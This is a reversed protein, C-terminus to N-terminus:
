CSAGLLEPLRRKWEREREPTTSYGPDYRWMGGEDLVWTLGSWSSCGAGPKSWGMGEVLVRAEGTGPDFDEVSVSLGEPDLYPSLTAQASRWAAYGDRDLIQSQKRGSLLNWAARFRRDVIARHHEYLMDEIELAVDEVPEDVSDTGADVTPAPEASAEATPADSSPEPEEGGGSGLAIAAGAIALGLVVVVVAISFWPPQRRSAPPPPPKGGPAPGPAARAPEAATDPSPGGPCAVVACGRNDAWCDGHHVAQCAGCSVVTVGEKLPFRCYPCSRGADQAGATGQQPQPVTSM